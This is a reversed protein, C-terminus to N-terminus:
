LILENRDEYMPEQIRRRHKKYKVVPATQQEYLKRLQATMLETYRAQNTDGDAMRRIGMLMDVHLLWDPVELGFKAIVAKRRMPDKPIPFLTRDKCVVNAQVFGTTIAATDEPLQTGTFDYAMGGFSKIIATARRGLFSTTPAM